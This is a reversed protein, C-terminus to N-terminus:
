EEPATELRVSVGGATDRMPTVVGPVLFIGQGSEFLPISDREWRPIGKELFLKKLRKHGVGPLLVRDGQRRSRIRWPFPYRELTVVALPPSVEPAPPSDVPSVIVLRGDGLPYTGCGTVTIEPITRGAGEVSLSIFGGSVTFLVGGPLIIEGAVGKEARSLCSEVHHFGLRRTSGAVEAYARRLIRRRLAPHHPIDAWRFTVRGEGPRVARSFIGAADEELRSEDDALISATTVLREDIRPNYERLIPLLHHRVRNRLSIGTDVNTRDERWQLGWRSAYNRVAERSVCLFPRVVGRPDRPPMGALGKGGSGRLLRLLVTEAQDDAHHAVAVTPIGFEKRIDSFFRYRALRGAEELSLSQERCLRTVDVKRVHFPLGWAAALDGVFEADRDSEEGRLAHNLHAVALQLGWPSRLLWHLLAVSDVGGSVAVLVRDGSSFLSAADCFARVTLDFPPAGWEAAPSCHPDPSCSSSRM